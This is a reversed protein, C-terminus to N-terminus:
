QQDFYNQINVNGCPNVGPVTGYVMLQGWIGALAEGGRNRCLAADKMLQTYLKKSRPYGVGREPIKVLRDTATAMNLADYFANIQVRGAEWSKEVEKIESDSPMAVNGTTQGKRAQVSLRFMAQQFADLAAQMEEGGADPPFSLALIRMPTLFERELKSVSAASGISTTETIAGIQDWNGPSFTLEKLEFVYFDGALQMAPWYQRYAQVAKSPLDDLSLGPEISAHARAPLQLSTAAAAAAFLASQAAARRTTSRLPTSSSSRSCPHSLWGAPRLSLALQPLLLLVAAKGM